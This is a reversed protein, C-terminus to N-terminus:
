KRHFEIYCKKSCFSQYRKSCLLCQIFLLNCKNNICNVYYDSKRNCQDCYSLIDKTVTEYLRLDFVFIKGLFEISNNNKICDNIYGIIGGRIQYVNKYGNSKIWLSTKECRIGGTCYLVIKKTKYKHIYQFIKQLQERFISTNMLIANKFHGIKHEYNNRIDVFVAEKNYLLNNVKKSNLYKNNLNINLKFSQLGDFIINKKIKVSLTNFSIKSNDIGINIYINKLDKHINSIKKKFIKLYKKLINAQINIGEYSIYIRGFINLKNCLSKIKKKIIEPNDIFFYKYLSINIRLYNKFSKKFYKTNQIFNCIGSM